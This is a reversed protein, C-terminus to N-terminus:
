EGQHCKLGCELGKHGVLDVQNHARCMRLRDM